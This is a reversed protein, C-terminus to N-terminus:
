FSTGKISNGFTASYEVQVGLLSTLQKFKGRINNLNDTLVEDTPEVSEFTNALKVIAECVKIIRSKSDEGKKLNLIRAAYGAYFGVESGIETGKQAGLAFGEEYSKATAEQVGETYGEQWSIEECMTISHFLDEEFTQEKQKVSM